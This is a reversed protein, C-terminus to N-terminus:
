TTVAEVAPPTEPFEACALAVVGVSAGVFKTTLAPAVGVDMWKDQVLLGPLLAM